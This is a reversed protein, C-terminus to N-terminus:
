NSFLNKTMGLNSVFEFSRLSRKSLKIWNGLSITTSITINSFDSFYRSFVGFNKKGLTLGSIDPPPPPFDEEEEVQSPGTVIM